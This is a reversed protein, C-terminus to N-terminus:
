GRRGKRQARDDAEAEAVARQAARAIGAAWRRYFEGSRARLQHANEVSRSIACDICRAEWSTPKRAFFAKGCTVCAFLKESYM